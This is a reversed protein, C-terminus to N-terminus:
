AKLSTYFYETNEKFRHMYIKKEHLYPTIVVRSPDNPRKIVYVFKHFAMCDFPSGSIIRDGEKLSFLGHYTDFIEKETYTSSNPQEILDYRMKICNNGYYIHGDVVTYLGSELRGCLEKGKILREYNIKKKILDYVTLKQNQDDSLKKVRSFIILKMRLQDVSFNVIEENEITEELLIYKQVDSFDVKYQM